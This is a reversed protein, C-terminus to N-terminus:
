GLFLRYVVSTVTLITPVLLLIGGTLYLLGVGIRVKPMSYDNVKHELYFIDKKRFESAAGEMEVWVPRITRVKSKLIHLVKCVEVRGLGNFIIDDGPEFDESRESEYDCSVQEGLFVFLKDAEVKLQDPFWLISGYSSSTESYDFSALPHADVLRDLAAITMTDTAIEDAERLYEEVAPHRKIARPAFVSYLGAATGFVVLGLYLLSIRHEGQLNFLWGDSPDAAINLFNDAFFYNYFVLHGLFPALVTLQAVRSNGLSALSSWRTTENVSAIGDILRSSASSYLRM